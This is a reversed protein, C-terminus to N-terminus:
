IRRLVKEGGPLHGCPRPTKLENQFGYIDTEGRRPSERLASPNKSKGLVKKSSEGRRPSERLASPNKRMGLDKKASEGRRPSARLASPNKSM